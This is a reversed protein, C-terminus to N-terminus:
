DELQQLLPSEEVFLRDAYKTGAGTACNSIKRKKSNM